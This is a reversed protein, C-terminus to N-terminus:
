LSVVVARLFCAILRGDLQSATQLQWHQSRLARLVGFGCLTLDEVHKGADAVMACEIRGSTQQCAVTLAVEFRRLLHQLEKGIQRLGSRVGQLERGAEIERHVIEAILKGCYGTGSPSVISESRRARVM